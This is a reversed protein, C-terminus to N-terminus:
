ILRSFGYGKSISLKCVGKERIKIREFGLSSFELFLDREMGEEERM